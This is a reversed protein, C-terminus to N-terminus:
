FEVGRKSKVNQEQGKEKRAREFYCTQEPTTSINRRFSKKIFAAVLPFPSSRAAVVSPFSPEQCGAKSDVIANLV